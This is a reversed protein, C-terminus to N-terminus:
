IRRLTLSALQYVRRTTAANAIATSLQRNSACGRKRSILGCPGDDLRQMVLRRLHRGSVGLWARALHGEAATQVEKM